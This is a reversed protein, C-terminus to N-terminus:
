QNHILKKLINHAITNSICTEEEENPILQAASGVGKISIV